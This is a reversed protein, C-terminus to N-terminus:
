YVCFVVVMIEMNYISLYYIPNSFEFSIYSNVLTWFV